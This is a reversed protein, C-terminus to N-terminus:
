KLAFSLALAWPSRCCGRRGVKAEGVRRSSASSSTRAPNPRPQPLPPERIGDSPKSSPESGTRLPIPEEVNDINAVINIGRWGVGVLARSSFVAVAPTSIVTECSSSLGSLLSFFRAFSSRRLLFSSRLRFLASATCTSTATSLAPDPFFCRSDSAGSPRNSSSWGEPASPLSAVAVFFRFFSLFDEFCRLSSSYSSESMM